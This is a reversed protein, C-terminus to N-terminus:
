RGIDERLHRIRSTAAQSTKDEIDYGPIDNGRHRIRSTKEVIDCGSIDSGWHWEQSTTVQINRGQHRKRSTSAQATMGQPDIGLFVNVQHRYWSTKEQIDFGPHRKRSTAEQIDLGSSDYGPLRHRRSISGPHMETSESPLPAIANANSCKDGSRTHECNHAAQWDPARSTSVRVLM